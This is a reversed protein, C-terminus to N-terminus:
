GRERLLAAVNRHGREEARESPWAGTGDPENRVGSDLLLAVVAHIREERVVHFPSPANPDSPEVADIAASLADIGTADRLSPDAGETLLASVADPHVGTAAAILATRGLCDRADVEAGCDLLFRVVEGHGFAAARLLATSHRLDCANVDAGAEVLLRTVDLFGARAARMLPAKGAHDVLNVDCGGELLVRVVEIHGRVAAMHCATRGFKIGDQYDEGIDENGCMFSVAERHVNGPDDTLNPDAGNEILRRVDEARDHRALQFLVAADGLLERPAHEEPMPIGRKRSSRRSDAGGGQQQRMLSGILGGGLQREGALRLAPKGDDEAVAPPEPLSPLPAIVPPVAPVRSGGPDSAPAADEPEGETQGSGVQKARAQRVRTLRVTKARTEARKDENKKATM